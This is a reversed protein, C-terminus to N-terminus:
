TSVSPTQAPANAAVKHLRPCRTPPEFLERSRGPASQSPGPAGHRAQSLMKSCGSGDGQPCQGPARAAGELVRPVSRPSFCGNSCGQPVSRARVARELAWTSLTYYKHHKVALLCARLRALRARSNLYCFFIYIYIYMYKNKEYISGHLYPSM